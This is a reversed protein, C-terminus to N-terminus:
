YTTVLHHPHGPGPTPNLVNDAYCPSAVCSMCSAGAKLIKASWAAQQNQYKSVLM